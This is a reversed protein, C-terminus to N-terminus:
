KSVVWTHNLRCLGHVKYGGKIQFHFKKFHMDYIAVRDDKLLIVSFQYFNPNLNSVDMKLDVFGEGSLPGVSMQDADTRMHTLLTGDGAYIVVSVIPSVSEKARYHIRITVPEGAEFQGRIEGRGDIVDVKRVVIEGSGIQENQEDLAASIASRYADIAKNPEGSFYNTGRALVMVKDCIKEVEHMQHSVYIITKKKEKFERMKDLCKARFVLDGVSLVEDILLIDIDCHVAVAFGLRVFMGSSYNKVPSDLFDRVGSFEVIDEFKADIEEKTMGLIAGNMYINERGTLLPHFGAGVAILAGVRGRITVRGQDPWFIGNLMKLLTTKGSGNAGIIGWSEGRRVELSIEKLAWFEEDRLRQSCASLGLMNRGIDTIGYIMSRKLSKCYKKSVNEVHIVVDDKM